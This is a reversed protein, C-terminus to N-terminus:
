VDVVAYFVTVKLTNAINGDAFNSQVHNIQNICNIFFGQNVYGTEDGDNRSLLFPNTNPSIFESDHAPSQFGAHAQSVDNDFVVSTYVMDSANHFGAADNGYGIYFYPAPLGTGDDTITYAGAKCDARWVSGFFILAKGNGPAPVIEVPATPLTIIDPHLITVTKSLMADGNSVKLRFSIPMRGDGRWDDRM